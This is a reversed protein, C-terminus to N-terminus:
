VFENEIYKVLWENFHDQHRFRQIMSEFSSTRLAEEAFKRREAVPVKYCEHLTKDLFSKFIVCNKEDNPSLKLIKYSLEMVKIQDFVYKIDKSTSQTVGERSKYKRYMYTVQHLVGVYNALNYVHSVFLNDEFNVGTPFRIGNENLFSTLYLKACPGFDSCILKWLDANAESYGGEIIDVKGDNGYPVPPGNSEENFMCLSSTVFELPFDTSVFVDLMDPLGSPTVVDDSDLFTVYRGTARELGTNRASGAGPTAEHLLTINEYLGALASAIEVTRDTSGNDVIIIETRYTARDQDLCSQVAHSIWHESNRCPIVVSILPLTKPSMEIHDAVPAIEIARYGAEKAGVNLLREIAHAITGDSPIPEEPFDQLTLDLDTLWKCSEPRFWFFSGAPFRLKQRELIAEPFNLSQLIERAQPKNEGWVMFKEIEAYPQPYALGITSDSSFISKLSNIYRRSRLLKYMLDKFWEGGVEDFHVSKKTHLHLCLDYQSAVKLFHRLFPAIDRGRNEVELVEFNAIKSAKLKAIAQSRCKRTNVTVMCFKCGDINEVSSILQPLLDVYYSHIHVAVSLEANADGRVPIFYSAEASRFNCKMGFNRWAASAAAVRGEDRGAVLYHFYPNIGASSVDPNDELYFRTDFEPHPNRNEKWGYVCFHEIPDIGSAAVDSYVSLYFETDFASSITDKVVDRGTSELNQTEELSREPVPSRGEEIGYRLYHVLPNIGAISVDSFNSLYWAADFRESPARGEFGGYNIFHDLPDLNLELVDANKALYFDEDFLGSRAIEDRIRHHYAKTRNHPGTKSLYDLLTRIIGTLGSEYEQLRKDIVSLIAKHKVNSQNIENFRVSYQLCKAELDKRENLVEDLRKSLASGESSRTELEVALNASKQEVNSLYQELSAIKADRKAVLSELDKGRREELRDWERAEDLTGNLSKVIAELDSAPVRKAHLTPILKEAKSQAIHLQARTKEIETQQIKSASLDKRLALMEETQEEAKTKTTQLQCELDDLKIRSAAQADAAVRHLLPAATDFAQRIEDLQRKASRSNPSRALTQISKYTTRIWDRSIPDLALENNKHSHHRLGTNVFEDVQKAMSEFGDIPWSISLADTLREFKSEWGELMNDYSLFFRPYSRSIYEADLVHRLWMLATDSRCLKDRRELSEFVELPNRFPLLIRVQIGLEELTSIILPALRCFRPDKLVFLPAEGFEESVVKGYGAQLERRRDASLSELLGPRWDHWISGLENLVDDNYQRTKKSEWYGSSNAFNPAMLEEPLAAGAISLLRTM